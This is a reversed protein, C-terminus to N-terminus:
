NQNLIIKIIANVDSINVEHDGNVDGNAGEGGLIIKIVANVDSINVEGDGNVDGVIPQPADNNVFQLTLSPGWAKHLYVPPFGGTKDFIEITLNVVCEGAATPFWESQLDQIDAMLPGVGTEYIGVETKMNCTSPFCIQYTGNDIREIVYHVKLNDSASGALNMVSIGSNIVVSEQDFPEVMDRVITAGDELINGDNDMFVYSGDIVHPSGSKVFKLTLTPGWAKHSYSPPFGAKKTLIEINLTVSCEGDDIPFWESQLDQIDTMLPGIGTEYSGVETKMNCTSPFCIQYTGNDIRNIVYHVKLYDDGGAVNLVWIGSNIIEAGTADDIEIDSRVVTAGNELINGNDDMFVYSEDIDQAQVPCALLAMSWLLFTFFRKM